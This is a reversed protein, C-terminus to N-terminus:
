QARGADVVVDSPKARRVDRSEDLRELDELATAECRGSGRFSPNPGTARYGWPGPSLKAFADSRGLAM